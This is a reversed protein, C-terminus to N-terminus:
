PGRSPQKAQQAPRAGIYFAAHETRNGAPDERVLVKNMANSRVNEIMLGSAVRRFRVPAMLSRMSFAPSRMM